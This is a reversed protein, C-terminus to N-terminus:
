VRPGLGRATTGKARGALALSQHISDGPGLGRARTGKALLRHRMNTANSEQGRDGPGLGGLGRLWM